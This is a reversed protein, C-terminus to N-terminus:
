PTIITVLTIHQYKIPLDINAKLFLESEKSAISSITGVLLGRPIKEERGSTIVTDNVNLNEGKPIFQMQLGSGHLGVVIGPSASKNQVEAALKSENDTLLRAYSFDNYVETIKGIIIGDAAIIAQNKEVGDEEGQNLVLFENSRSIVRANIGKLNNANLYKQQKTILKNEEILLKLDSNERMLEAIKKELAIIEQQPELKTSYFFALAPSLTKVFLNKLPNLLNLWNAIIILLVVIIIILASKLNAKLQKIM